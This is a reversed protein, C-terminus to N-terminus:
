AHNPEPVTRQYPHHHITEPTDRGDNGPQFTRSHPVHVNGSRLSQRLQELLCIEWMQRDIEDPQPCVAERWAAPVFDLPADAGIGRKNERNRERLYDV